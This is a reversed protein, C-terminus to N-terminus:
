TNGGSGIINTIVDFVKQTNSKFENKDQGKMPKPQLKFDLKLTKLRGKDDTYEMVNRYRLVSASRKLKTSNQVPYIFGYMIREQSGFQRAIADRIKRSMDMAISIAAYIPLAYGLGKTQIVKFGSAIIRYPTIFVRAPKIKGFNEEVAGYCEAIIQENPFLSFREILTRDMTFLDRPDQKKLVNQLDLYTSNMYFTPDQALMEAFLETLSGMLETDPTKVIKKLIKTLDRNRKMEFAQLLQTRTAEDLAPM